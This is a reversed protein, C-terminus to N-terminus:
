NTYVRQIKDNYDDLSKVVVQKQKQYAAIKHIRLEDGSCKGPADRYRRRRKM